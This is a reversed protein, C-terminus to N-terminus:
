RAVADASGGADALTITLRHPLCVVPAAREGLWGQRVCVRDPCDADSVCVRGPEVTVTNYGGGPADVTFSYPETVASLDIERLIVGDRAVRAVTGAPKKSLSLYSRAALLLAAAALMAIWTRTKLM